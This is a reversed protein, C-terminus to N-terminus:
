RARGAARARGPRHRRTTARRSCELARKVLDVDVAVLTAGDIVGDATLYPQVRLLWWRGDRDTLEQEWPRPRDIIAKSPWSGIRTTTSALTSTSWRAASTRPCCTSRPRRRGPHAPPRASRPGRGGDAPRRQEIFNSLDDDAVDLETNRHQLQENVTTLEENSSQLEEKTTELEENTSQLEENSSLMEEHAARLDQTASEQQDVISQLYQQTSALEQRLWAVDRTPLRRPGDDPARRGASWRRGTREARLGGAPLVDAPPAVSVPLVRLTFEIDGRRRAVRLGERVVPAKTTRRKTLASRLELFLGEKAM